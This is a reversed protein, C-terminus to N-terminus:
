DEIDFSDARRAVYARIEKAKATKLGPISLDVAAGGATFFKLTSLEYRRAVPGQSLEVHQIRAFPLVVKKRFLWGSRFLIDHERLALGKFKIAHLSALNVIAMLLFVAGGILAAKWLTGTAFWPVAFSIGSSVLTVLIAVLRNMRLFDPHLPEFHVEDASPIDDLAVQVNSFTM